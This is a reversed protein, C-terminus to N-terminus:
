RTSRLHDEINKLRESTREDLLEVTRSVDKLAQAATNLAQVFSQADVHSREELAVARRWLVGVAVILIGVVGLDAYAPSSEAILFPVM